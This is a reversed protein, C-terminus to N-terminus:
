HPVPESGFRLEYTIGALDLDTFVLKLSDGLVSVSAPTHVKESEDVLQIDLKKMDEVSKEKRQVYIELVGQEPLTSFIIEYDKYKSQYDTAVPITGRTETLFQTDPALAEVVFDALDDVVGGMSKVVGQVKELIRNKNFSLKAFAGRPSKAESITEMVRKPIATEVPTPKYSEILEAAQQLDTLQAKCEKCAALHTEAHLLATGSLNGESLAYLTDFDLHDKALVKRALKGHKTLANQLSETNNQKM